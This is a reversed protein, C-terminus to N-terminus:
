DLRSGAWCEIGQSLLYDAMARAHASKREYSQEYAHIPLEIGKPYGKRAKKHKALWKGFSTNGSVTVWGFGCMGEPVYDVLTGQSDTVLMPRPVCSNAANEGMQWATSFLEEFRSYRKEREIKEAAIKERLTKFETM